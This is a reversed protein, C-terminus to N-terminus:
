WSTIATRLVPKAWSAEADMWSTISMASIAEAPRALAYADPDDLTVMTRGRAAAQALTSKGCQRPGTILVVPTDSLADEVLRLAHRAIM